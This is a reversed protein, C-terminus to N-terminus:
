MELLYNAVYVSCALIVIGLIAVGFLNPTPLVHPKKNKVKQEESAKRSQADDPPMYSGAGMQIEERTSPPQVRAQNM